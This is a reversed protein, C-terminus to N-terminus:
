FVRDNHDRKFPKAGKAIGFGKEILALNKKLIAVEIVEDKKIKDQAMVESPILVGFSSGVQRVKAKFVQLVGGNYSIIVVSNLDM